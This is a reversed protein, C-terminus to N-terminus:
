GGAGLPDSGAINPLHARGTYLDLSRVSGSRVIADSSQLLPVLKCVFANDPFALPRAWADEGRLPDHHIIRIM